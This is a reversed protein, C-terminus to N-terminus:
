KNIKRWEWPPTPNLQQWLGRKTKRAEKETEFFESVYPRDLYELYAWAFGGKVMELNINKNNLLIYGAIRGYRDIDQVDVKVIKDKILSELYTKAEIGYPQRKEPADIGRLRISISNDKHTKANSPYISTPMLHITDGDLVRVVKGTITLLEANTYAYLILVILAIIILGTITKKIIGTNRKTSYGVLGFNM